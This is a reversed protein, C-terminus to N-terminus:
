YYFNPCSAKFPYCEFGFPELEKNMEDLIEWVSVAKMSREHMGVLLHAYYKASAQKNDIDINNNNNIIKAQCFRDRKVLARRRVGENFFELNTCM